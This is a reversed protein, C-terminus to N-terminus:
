KNLVKNNYILYTFGFVVWFLTQFSNSFFSGTPLFPLFNSILFCLPFLILYNKQKQYFKYFNYFILFFPILIGLTGVLGHESLLELYIQHPHTSCAKHYPITQYNHQNYGNKSCLIRFNKNGVGFWKNNIFMNYATVFHGYHSSNDTFNDKFIKISFQDQSNFLQQVYRIKIKENFTILSTLTFIGAVVIIFKYRFKFKLLFIILFISFLIRIFPARSGSIFCGLVILSIIALVVHNKKNKKILFFTSIFLFSGIFTSANEKAFFGNFRLSDRDEYGFIDKGFFWQYYIDTTAFIIIASWLLVIINFKKNNNICYKIAAILIIYKIFSFNRLFSFYFNQSAFINFLLFIYIIFLYKIIKDKLFSWDKNFFNNILFLLCILLILTESIGPSIIIAVPLLSLLVFIVDSFKNKKLKNYTM